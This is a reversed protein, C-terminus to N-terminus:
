APQRRSYATAASLLVDAAVMVILRAICPTVTMKGIDPIPRYRFDVRSGVIGEADSIAPFGPRGANM